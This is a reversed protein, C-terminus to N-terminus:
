ILVTNHLDLLSAVHKFIVTVLLVILPKEIRCKNTVNKNMPRCLGANPVSKLIEM